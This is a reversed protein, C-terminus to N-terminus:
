AAAGMMPQQQPAAIQPQGMQPQGPQGGAGMQPQPTAAMAQQQQEDEKMVEEEESTSLNAFDLSKKKIISDLAKNAPMLTKSYQLKQLSDAIQSQVDDKMRVECKYALKQFWQSPSVNKAYNKKTLRGKKVIVMDDLIDAAAELMKTYKLGFDEWSANYYVKMAKVRDEANKLALQVEGLTIQPGPEQTTGQQTTTAASVQQAMTLVFNMHELTDALDPIDVHMIQDGLKGSEGAPIPYWGWPVPEFTQPTFGEETLSSNFYNMGFNRLTRNEVLQSFWANLVKNLTRLADAVGDSWFDARETEDGWTTAPYHTTWFNDSTDGICEELPASYLVEMDEATIVYTIEDRGTNKNFEKIYFENLEVYTEGLIPAFADIVGLSAAAKQKLVWDYSNEQAKILGLETAMFQELGDVAATDLKPNTKLSALPKYIHERCIGRASDIDSPDVYRDVLVDDPAVVEWFFKGDIINMFKFSRGYLLVQRKDVIDKIVLENEKSNANWYENYFVEQQDDNNIDSFYLMPPDDIDKLLTKISSKILPINVSQRQTLRNLQVKDRYMTYNDIWDPQRRMRFKFWGEKNIRLKLLLAANPTITEEKPNVSNTYLM